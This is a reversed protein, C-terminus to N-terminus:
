QNRQREIKIKEPTLWTSLWETPGPNASEFALKPFVSWHEDAKETHRDHERKQGGSIVERPKMGNEIKAVNVDWFHAVFRPVFVSQERDLCDRPVDVRHQKLAKLTNGRIRVELGVPEA